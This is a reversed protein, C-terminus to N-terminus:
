YYRKRYAIQEIKGQIKLKLHPNTQFSDLVIDNVLVFTLQTPKTLSHHNIALIFCFTSLFEPFSKPTPLIQYYRGFVRRWGSPALLSVKLSVPCLCSSSTSEALGQAQFVSAVQTSCTAHVM